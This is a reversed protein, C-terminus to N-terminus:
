GSVRKLARGLARLPRTVRWSTSRKIRDIEAQMASLTPLRSVAGNDGVFLQERLCKLDYRETEREGLARFYSALAEKESVDGPLWPHRKADPASNIQLVGLGYSHKFEMHHKYVGKLEDWLRWVGFNREKVCIDHFMMLGDLKMKPVWTEFDSRVAQYTHLGDIHLVDISGEHFRGAAEEFTMRLLKSFGGYRKENHKKVFEYVDEGYVGAHEDGRWTDVAYCNTDIAARQIAECFAFYSHGYHSGLEVFTEPRARGVIWAAVPTLGRWASPETLTEPAFEAIELLEVDM